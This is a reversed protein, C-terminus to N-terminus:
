FNNKKFRSIRRISCSKFVILIRRDWHTRSFILNYEARNILSNQSSFNVVSLWLVRTIYLSILRSGRVYHWYFFCRNPVCLLMYLIEAFTTQSLPIYTTKRYPNYGVGVLMAPKVSINQNQSNCCCKSNFLRRLGLFTTNLAAVPSPQVDLVHIVSNLKPSGVPWDM